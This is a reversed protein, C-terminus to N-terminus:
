PRRRRDRQRDPGEVTALLGPVAIIDGADRGTLVHALIEGTQEAIALHLRRSQRRIRGHKEADWDGQGFAQLGALM